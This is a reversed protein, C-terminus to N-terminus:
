IKSRAVSIQNADYQLQESIPWEIEEIIDERFLTSSRFRARGTGPMALNLGYALASAPGSGMGPQSIMKTHVYFLEAFM